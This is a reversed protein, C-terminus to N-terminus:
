LTYISSIIYPSSKNIVLDTEFEFHESSQPNVNLSIRISLIRLGDYPIPPLSIDVNYIHLVLERPEKIRIVEPRSQLDNANPSQPFHGSDKANSPTNQFAALYWSTNLVLNSSNSQIWSRSKKVSGLIQVSIRGWTRHGLPVWFAVWVGLRMENHENFWSGLVIM